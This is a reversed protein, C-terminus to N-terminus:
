STASSPPLRARRSAHANRAAEPGLVAHAARNGAPPRLAHPVRGMRRADRGRRRRAGALAFAAARPEAHLLHALRVPVAHAADAVMARATAHPAVVLALSGILWSWTARTALRADRALASAAAASKMSLEYLALAQLCAARTRMAAGPRSRSARCGCRRLARRRARRRAGLRRPALPAAGAGLRPPLLRWDLWLERRPRAPSSSPSCTTAARWPRGRWTARRTPCSTPRAARRLRRQGADALAARGGGGRREAGAAAHAGPASLGPLARRARHLELRPVPRASLADRADRPRAALWGRSRAPVALVVEALARPRCTSAGAALGLRVHRALIAPRDFAPARRRPLPPVAGSEGAFVPEARGASVAMRALNRATHVM